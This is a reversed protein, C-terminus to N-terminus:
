SKDLVNGFQGYQPHAPYESGFSFRTKAGARCAYEWQAETPLTFKFNKPLRGANHERKTLKKCFNMADDWSVCEVPRNNGAFRSPSNGMVVLWQAQTVETKGLAFPSLVVEVSDVAQKEVSIPVVLIERSTAKDRSMTFVGEPINIFDMKEGYGLDVSFNAQDFPTSTTCASGLLCICMLIGAFLYKMKNKM